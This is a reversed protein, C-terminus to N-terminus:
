FDFPLAIDEAPELYKDDKTEANAVARADAVWSPESDTQRNSSQPFDFRDVSVDMTAGDRGDRTTYERLRVWGTIEIPEGKHFYREINEGQKGWASCSFFDSEYKGTEKDKYPRKVAIRFNCVTNTGFERLEPDAVLRGSLTINNM